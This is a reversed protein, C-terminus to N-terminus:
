WLDPKPSWDGEGYVQEIIAGLSGGFVKIAAAEGGDNFDAQNVFQIFIEYEEALSQVILQALHYSLESADGPHHFSDGSWFKQISNADWYDLHKNHKQENLQYSSYGTISAEMNVALGENLWAPIPLHALMAHTLEHAAVAEVHDLENHPVVFHGYGDSLFVGSSMAFEGDEPYYHSIYSYYLEINEFVLVVFKGRENYQVIGKLSRFIRAQISELYHIFISLYSDSASSFIYFHESEYIEHEDALNNSLQILWKSVATSWFESLSSMESEKVIGKKLATGIETWDIRPFDDQVKIHEDIWSFDPQNEIISPSDIRSQIQSPTDNQTSISSNNKASQECFARDLKIYLQRKNKKKFFGFM